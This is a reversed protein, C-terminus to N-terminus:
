GNLIISNVKDIAVSCKLGTDIKGGNLGHEKQSESKKGLYRQIGFIFLAFTICISVVFLPKNQSSFITSWVYTILNHITYEFGFYVFAVIIGVLAVAFLLKTYKM